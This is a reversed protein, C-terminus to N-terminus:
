NTARRADCLPLHTMKPYKQLEAQTACENLGAKRVGDLYLALPPDPIGGFDSLLREMSFEYHRLLEAKAAKADAQRDLQAYSMALLARSWVPIDGVERRVMTIVQGFRGTVYYPDVAVDYNPPHRPNLRFARDMMEAAEKARGVFTLCFSVHFLVDPDNPNLDLAKDAMAVCRDWDSLTMYLVSLASYTLADNSDLAIARLLLNKSKELLV